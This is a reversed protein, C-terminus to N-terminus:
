EDEDNPKRLRDLVSRAGEKLKDATESGSEEVDVGFATLIRNISEGVATWLGATALSSKSEFQNENVVMSFELPFEGDFSNVYAVIPGTAFRTVLGATDPAKVEIDRFALRWDMEIELQGDRRWKDDVQIDVMGEQFWSLAGGAMAGFRAVPVDTARWATQRGAADGGTRVDFEAGAITGNVNSRFLIDFLALRSRLPASTASDIQLPLEFSGGDKNVGSLGIDVDEIRLDRVVFARRPKEVKEDSDPDAVRQHRKVSGRLGSVFASEIEATGFLSGLRLDFDVKDLELDFESRDHDNRVITCDGLSVRGSFVNGEIEDCSTEIGGRRELVGFVARVSDAFYFTNVVFLAGLTVIAFALFVKLATNVAGRSKRPETRRGPLLSLIAAVILGFIEVILTVLPALLAFIMEGFILLLAEM